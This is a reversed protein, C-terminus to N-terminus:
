DWVMEADLSLSKADAKPREPLEGFELREPERVEPKSSVTPRADGRESGASSSANRRSRTRSLTISLNRDENAIVELSKSPYGPAEVVLTYMKEDDRPLTVDIPNGAHDTGELAIIASSPVASARLQITEVFAPSQPDEDPSVASTRLQDRRTDLAQTSEETPLPPIMSDTPLEARMAPHENSVLSTVIGSIGVVLGLVSVLLAVTAVRSGSGTTPTNAPLPQATPAPFSPLSSLTLGGEAAVEDFRAQIAASRRARLEGFCETALRALTAGNAPPGYAALAEDLATGLELATAYREEPNVSTTKRCVSLLEPPIGRPDFNVPSNQGIVLNSLIQLDDADGWYRKGTAIEWLMVGVPFLDARRDVSRAQSVMEPAMYAATGKLVAVSDTGDRGNATAKAVGFDLVKVQGDFTIFINAPKVDRHVLALPTGDYDRFEHLYNLGILAQTIATFLPWRKDFSRQELRRMLAKLPIGELYEMVIFPYGDHVGVSFTQVVNPHSLRAAIRAEKLFMEVFAQGQERLSDRLTKLVVVKHFNSVPGRAIALYVDAMGGHGLRAVIDYEGLRGRLGLHRDDFTAAAPETVTRTAPTESLKM